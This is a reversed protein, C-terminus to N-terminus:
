RGAARPKTRSTTGSSPIRQSRLSCIACVLAIIHALQTPTQPLVTRLGPTQLRLMRREFGYDSTSMYPRSLSTAGPLNWQSLRTSSASPERSRAGAGTVERCLAAAHCKGGTRPYTPLLPANTIDMLLTWQEKYAVSYEATSSTLIPRRGIHEFPVSLPEVQSSKRM